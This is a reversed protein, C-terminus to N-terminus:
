FARGVPTSSSPWRAALAQRRFAFIRELQRRVLLTHALRGFPGGPLRYTLRDILRSGGEPRPEVEHMHYWFRYPGRRQEDVFRRGPEVHKIESVWRSWGLLPLRVRYEVLLGDHMTGPLDSVLEIGLEPPTLEKLNAPNNLFAWAEAPSM